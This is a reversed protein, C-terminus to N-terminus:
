RAYLLGCMGGSIIVKNIREEFIAVDYNYKNLVWTTKRTGIINGQDDCIDDLIPTDALPPNITNFELTFRKFANMNIAGSPQIDTIDGNLSFNYYYVEPLEDTACKNRAYLEAYKYLEGRSLNERYKGDLLFAIDILINRQNGVNFAGTTKINVTPLPINQLSQPTDYPYEWNTYNTWENRQNVDSRRFRIMYSSVLDKTEINIARSGTVNLVEYKYPDYIMYEHESLAIHQREEDDLYIYNAILHIDFNWENSQNDYLSLVNETTSLENFPVKPQNIFYFFQHFKEAPNPAIYKPKNDADLNSIDLVNRIRYLENIKRMTIVIEMESYQCAVLPFARYTSQCFWANLPIYLQRGRISPEIPNGSGDANPYFGNRNFAFAPNNLEVTNGTMDNWIDHKNRNALMTLYEGDYRSMMHGGILIQIDRIMMTGLNDIWRFGTEMYGANFEYEADFALPSYIDPLNVVIYTDYLLDAQRDVKFRYEVEKDFLADRNSIPDLRIRQMGFNTIKRYKAKFYTKTPNGYLMISPAGKSVLNLLGGAM